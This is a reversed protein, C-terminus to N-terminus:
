RTALRRRGADLLRLCALGLLAALLPPGMLLAALARANSTRKDRIAEAVVSLPVDTYCGKVTCIGPFEFGEVVYTCARGSADGHCSDHAPAVDARARRAAVLAAVLALSALARRGTLM